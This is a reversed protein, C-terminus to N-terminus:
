STIIASAVAYNKTHSVSILINVKPDKNKLQCYPKGNKDNLITMDKWSLAQNDGFAKYIAEKAAFRAAYHQTPFKKDKAYNIEEENFIHKLFDEGWSRLFNGDRDFVVMPHPGRNFVYVNDHADVAVAAADKLDWDEGDPLTGWGEQLEYTYEGSGMIVAM